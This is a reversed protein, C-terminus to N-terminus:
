LTSAPKVQRKKLWLSLIFIGLLAVSALVIILVAQELLSAVPVAAALFCGVLGVRWSAAHVGALFTGLAMLSMIALGVVDSNLMQQLNPMFLMRMALLIAGWHLLQTWLLRWRAAKGKAVRWGAIICILSFIPVLVQWYEFTAGPSVSAYTVGVVTLLLMAVYPLEEVWFPLARQPEDQTNTSEPDAM